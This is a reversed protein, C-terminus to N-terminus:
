NEKPRINTATLVLRRAKHRHEHHRWLVYVALLFAVAVLLAIWIICWQQVMLVM